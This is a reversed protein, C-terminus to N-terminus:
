KYRTKGRYDRPMGVPPTGRVPKGSNSTRAGNRGWPKPERYKWKLNEGTLEVPNEFRVQDDM